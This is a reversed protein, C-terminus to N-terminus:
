AVTNGVGGGGGGGGGGVCFFFVFHLASLTMAKCIISLHLIGDLRVQKIAYPRSLVVFGHDGGLKKLDDVIVTPLIGMLNDEKGTHLIRTFGGMDGSTDLTKQKQYHYYYVLAQWQM